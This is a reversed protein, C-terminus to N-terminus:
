YINIQVSACKNASDCTTLRGTRSPYSSSILISATFSGNAGVTNQWTAYPSTASTPDYFRTTAVKGATFHSGTVRWDYGGGDRSLRTATIAAVPSPSPSPSPSVSPTASPSPSPSVAPTPSLAARPSPSAKVRNTTLSALLQPGHGLEFGGAALALVMVAAAGIWAARPVRIPARERRPKPKPKPAPPKPPPAPAVAVPEKVAVAAALDDVFAGCSAYREGPDKSLARQLVKEVAEPLTPNISRAPPMPERLQALVVALPTPATFPLKGTLMEFAMVALAYQDAAPTLMRGECQEPAMYEPTGVITGTKTLASTDSELMKALGFDSLVPTGDRELLVNSPKVDRHLVGKAHAYDLAAGIRKLVEIAFDAQVPAGLRDSLTGGEILDSVIYAVDGQEGFDHVAPINPHRLAAIAIAEQQFRQKFGAEDALHQPLVKLAVYRALSQQFARYVTAMGGQGLESVIRYSGLVTGPQLKM